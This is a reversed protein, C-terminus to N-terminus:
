FQFDTLHTDMSAYSGLTEAFVQPDYQLSLLVPLPFKDGHNDKLFLKNQPWRGMCDKM